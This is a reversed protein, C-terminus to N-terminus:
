QYERKIRKSCTIRFFLPLRPMIGLRDGTKGGRGLGIKPQGLNLGVILKDQIFHLIEPPAQGSRRSPVPTPTSM